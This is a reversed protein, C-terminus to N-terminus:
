RSYKTRIVLLRSNNGLNVASLLMGQVMDELEKLLLLLLLPLDFDIGSDPLTSTAGSFPSCIM